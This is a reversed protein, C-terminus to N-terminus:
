LSWYLMLLAFDYKDVKGDGNFDCVNTGTKGWNSMLLSFDYKDIKSDKNTDVKQATASLTTSPTSGSVAASGSGSSPPPNIGDGSISSGGSSPVSAMFGFIAYPTNASAISFTLTNATTDKTFPTVVEWASGNYKYPKVASEDIGTDDYKMTATISLGTGNIKIEYANLVKGGAIVAAAGTFFSSDLKHVDAITAMTIAGVSVNVTLLDGMNILMPSTPTIIAEQQTIAEGESKTIVGVSGPVILNLQTSNGNAFIATENAKIGSVYFEITKGANTNQSDTVFLLNPNYGYSGGATVSGGVVVGNIKAQISLGNPIAGSAFQAAGFFQHPIGPSQAFVIVPLCLSAAMTIIKLLMTKM